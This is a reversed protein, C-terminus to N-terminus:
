FATNKREHSLKQIYEVLCMNLYETLASRVAYFCLHLDSIIERITLRRGSRALNPIRSINENNISTSPRGFQFDGDVSECANEFKNLLILINSLNLYIDGFTTKLVDYTGM